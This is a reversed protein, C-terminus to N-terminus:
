TGFAGSSFKAPFEESNKIARSMGSDREHAADPSTKDVNKTALAFGHTVVDADRAIHVLPERPVVAAGRTVGEVVARPPDNDRHLKRVLLSCDAELLVQFGTRTASEGLPM